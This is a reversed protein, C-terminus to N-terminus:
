KIRRLTPKIFPGPIIDVVKIGNVAHTIKQEHMMKAVFANTVEKQYEYAGTLVNRFWVIQKKAGQETVPNNTFDNNM